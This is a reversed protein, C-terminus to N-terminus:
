GKAYNQYWDYTERLGEELSYQPRYGVLSYLKELDPERHLIEHNNRPPISVISLKKGSIQIVKEALQRVTIAKGTGINISEGNTRESLLAEISAQVNDKVYVFNRTMSGDRVITLPEGNIAQKMFIGVVFGYDSSEQRPGFVNFFRLSVTPLNHKHYYAQAYSEGILKVQAYPIRANLVGDEKEPLEIPEGYVESSSAFVIKKVKHTHSLEFINKIGQIDELVALPDEQTRKVGVVAAYHFVYDFQYQTFIKKLEEYRNCDAEIFTFSPHNHLFSNNNRSSQSLNDVCVVFAGKELLAECVHSGVFGSGGTVLFLKNSLAFDSM